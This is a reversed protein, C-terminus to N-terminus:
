VQGQQESNRVNGNDTISVISGGVITLALRFEAVAEINPIDMARLEGHITRYHVTYDSM